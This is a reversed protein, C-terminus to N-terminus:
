EITLFGDFRLDPTGSVRLIVLGTNDVMISVETEENYIGNIEYVLTTPYIGKLHTAENIELKYEAGDVTWDAIVFSQTYKGSISNVRSALEDLASKVETPPTLWDGPTTPNYSIYSASDLDIINADTIIGGYGLSSADARVTPTNGMDITGTISGPFTCGTMAIVGTGILNLNTGQICNSMLLQGGNEVTGTGVFVVNNFLANGKLSFNSVNSNTVTFFYPGATTDTRTINYAGDRFTAIAIAAPSMDMIVDNMSLGDFVPTCEVGALFDITATNGISAGKGYLSVNAPITVPGTSYDGPAMFIVYNKSTDTTLTLAKELTEFPFVVNGTGTTDDGGQSDIYIEEPNLLGFSSLNVKADLAAQLDSQDSLTGGIMGWTASGTASTTVNDFSSGIVDIYNGLSDYSIVSVRIEEYTSVDIVQNDSGTIDLLSVWDSQGVLRGEVKISNGAGANEIVFRIKAEDRIYAESIIGTSTARHVLNYKLEDM